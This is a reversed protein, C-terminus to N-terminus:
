EKKPCSLLGQISLRVRHCPTGYAIYGDPIDKTVVSGAGIICWKGIKIGQIITSGAGIWSGTGISINGCLTAKPSIHAYDGIKCDHEVISGTNIICHKGITTGPQVVSLPMVVTGKGITVDESIIATPHIAKGFVVGKAQLKEAVQKRLDNQGISVISPTPLYEDSIKHFVEMGIFEKIKEDDDIIGDLTLGLKKLIDAIVKAHGSAGYLYM